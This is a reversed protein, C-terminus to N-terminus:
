PPLRFSTSLKGNEDTVVDFSNHEQFDEIELIGLSSLTGQYVM